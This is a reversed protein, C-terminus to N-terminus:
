RNDTLLQCSFVSFQFSSGGQRRQTRRAEATFDRVTGELSSWGERILKPSELGTLPSINISVPVVLCIELETPAVRTGSLSRM